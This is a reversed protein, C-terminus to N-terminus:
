QLFFLPAWSVWPLFLHRSPPCSTGSPLAQPRHPSCPTGCRGAGIGLTRTAPRAPCDLHSWSGPSAVQPWSATDPPPCHISSLAREQNCVVALRGTTGLGVQGWPKGGLTLSWQGGEGPKNGQHGQITPLSLLCWEPLRGQTSLIQGKVSPLLRPTPHRQHEPGPLVSSPSPSLSFSGSRRRQGSPLVLSDLTTSLSRIGLTSVSQESSKEWLQGWSSLPPRGSGGCGWPTWMHVKFPPGQLDERM